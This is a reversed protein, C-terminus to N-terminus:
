RETLDQAQRRDQAQRQGLHRVRLVRRDTPNMMDDRHPSKDGAGAGHLRRGTTRHARGRGSRRVAGGLRDAQEPVPGHRRDSLAPARESAVMSASLAFIPVTAQPRPLQRIRRSAEIGDMVPMQVDMLVVDLDVRGVLDLAAAGDVALLVEHGQHGLVESLLERNIAVDDVVLLRLPRVTEPEIPKSTAAVARGREFPLEFWFLSGRGPESSLGIVGGMAGILRQCIALGLGSGGYQRSTSSDAQVFPQFLTPQRDLAIGIGTDQVEFRLLVGGAPAPLDSVALTIGGQHTFKVANGILNVLVQKLRTPDGRVMFSGAPVQEIRLDLGRDAVQPAMLSRVDELVDAPAFDIQELEVKGSEIRSFDLISNIIHLLHQGSHRIADLYHQQKPELREAALLDAMGLVGTMPSRIEHSMAALFESKTRSAREAAATMARLEAAQRELSLRAEALAERDRKEDTVDRGHGVYGIIRGSKDQLPAKLSCLWGSTGDLRRAPQEVITTEPHAFFTEEDAAFGAAIEPPYFERDHRGIIDAAAGAGMIRVTAANAAIFRGQRDKAFVLDPLADLMARYLENEQARARAARLARELPSIDSHMVLVMNRGDVALRTARLKMWREHSPSDCPYDLTFEGEGAAVARLGAAVASAEAADQGSAGACTAFYNTGVGCLPDRQGNATGFDRWAQNVLLVVGDSDLLAINAQSCDILCQAVLLM